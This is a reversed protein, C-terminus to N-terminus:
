SSSVLDGDLGIRGSENGVSSWPRSALVQEEAAGALGHVRRIRRSDCNLLHGDELFVLEL